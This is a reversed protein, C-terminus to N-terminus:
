CILVSSLLSSSRFLQGEGGAPGLPGADGEQYVRWLVITGFPDSEPIALVFTRSDFFESVHAPHPDAIGLVSYVAASLGM